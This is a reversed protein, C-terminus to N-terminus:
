KQLLTALQSTNKLIANAGANVLENNTGFGCLVGISLAGARGASRIDQTTDGVMLCASPSVGMLGAAFLVPEPHPKLRRTSTRTVLLEFIGTLGNESIFMEAEDAGRTTVVALRYSGRLSQLMQEVGPIIRFVAKKKRSKWLPLLMNDLGLRDLLTIIGNVPTEAAMVLRRAKLLPTRVGLRNLLKAIREAAQDDTDMLTGDLDFFVAQVERFQDETMPEIQKLLLNRSSHGPQCICISLKYTYGSKSSKRIM